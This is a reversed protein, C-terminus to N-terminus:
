PLGGESRSWTQKAEEKATALIARQSSPLASPIDWNAAQLHERIETARPPNSNEFAKSNPSFAKGPNAVEQLFEAESTVAIYLEDYMAERVLDRYHLREIGNSIAAADERSDSFM